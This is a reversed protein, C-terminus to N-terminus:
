PTALAQALVPWDTPLVRTVLASVGSADVRFVAAEGEVPLDVDAALRINPSHSVLITNTGAAPPTALL